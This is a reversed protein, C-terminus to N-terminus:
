IGGQPRLFRVRGDHSGYYEVDVVPTQPFVQIDSHFFPVYINWILFKLVNQMRGEHFPM